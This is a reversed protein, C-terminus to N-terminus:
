AVRDLDLSELLTRARGRWSGATAFAREAGPSPPNAVLRRIAAIQDEVTACILAPSGLREIEPWRAAVVPLDCAMYEYLKLPHITNVIDARRRADFPILGIDANHLYRPLEDYSRRGLVHVNPSAPIRARAMEPPGVLVFSVDPLATAMASVAAFDFWEDMAGVYIAIPRAIRVLDDPLSRDASTFHEVDVGNPLLLSRDPSMERIESELGPSTYAVLDVDAVLERQRKVMARSFGRFASMRDGVRLVSARHRILDLWFGQVVSDIFLIDVQGFGHARVKSVVNPVSLRHWSRLLAQSGLMPGLSPTLLAGPVYAWVHGGVDTVGGRRYLAWRDRVDQSRLRAMHLPSIPNSVYAVDWGLGVLARALHHGGLQFASTWAYPSAFLAKPRTTTM